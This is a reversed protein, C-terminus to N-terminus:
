VRGIQNEVPLSIYLEVRISLEHFVFWSQYYYGQQHVLHTKLCIWLKEYFKACVDVTCTLTNHLQPHTVIKILINDYLDLVFTLKLHNFNLNSYFLNQHVEPTLILDGKIRSIYLHSVLRSQTLIYFRQQRYKM